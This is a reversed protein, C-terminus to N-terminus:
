PNPLDSMLSVYMDELASQRVSLDVLAWNNESISRLVSAIQGVDAARFVYNDGDKEYDLGPNHIRHLFQVFSTRETVSCPHDYFCQEPFALLPTAPEIM